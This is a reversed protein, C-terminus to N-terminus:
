FALGSFLYFSQFKSLIREFESFIVWFLLLYHYSNVPARLQGPRRFRATVFRRQIGPALFNKKGASKKAPLQGKYNIAFFHM